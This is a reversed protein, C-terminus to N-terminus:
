STQEYLQKFIRKIEKKAKLNTKLIPQLNAIAQFIKQDYSIKGLLNDKFEKEMQRSLSRNIDWKNIVIRFPIKFHNMLELIRKLDSLGSPTPESILVALDADQFAAIVPCGTGPSSDIIMMEALQNDEAKEKIQSVVKGSGTEGPLLQGTLLSFGYKTRILKIQGNQVPKLEVAQRPCVIRCVGCGECLFPNIEAKGHKIQIAQFVCKGVCEGCGNCKNKDIVAKLSTSINQSFQINKEDLENLWIALNPADVDADVAIIKKKKAFLMTLASTLM